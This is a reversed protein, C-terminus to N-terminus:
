VFEVGATGGRQWAVRVRRRRGIADILTVEDPLTTRAVFEIRAGRTSLNKVVVAM